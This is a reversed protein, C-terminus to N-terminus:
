VDAPNASRVKMGILNRSIQMACVPLFDASAEPPFSSDWCHHNQDQSSFALVAWGRELAKKSIAVEEPLGARLFLAPLPTFCAISNCQDSASPSLNHSM